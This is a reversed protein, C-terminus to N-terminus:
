LTFLITLTFLSSSPFKTIVRELYPLFILFIYNLTEFLVMKKHERLSFACVACNYNNSFMCCTKVRFSLPKKQNRTRPKGTRRWCYLTTQECAWGTRVNVDALLIVASLDNLNGANGLIKKLKGAKRCSDVTAVLLFRTSESPNLFLNLMIGVQNSLHM